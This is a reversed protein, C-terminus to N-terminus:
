RPVKRLTFFRNGGLLGQQADPIKVFNGGPDYYDQGTMWSYARGTVAVQNVVTLGAFRDAGPIGGKLYASALGQGFNLLNAFRGPRGGGNAIRLLNQVRAEVRPVAVPRGAADKYFGECQNRATIVELINQSRIAAIEEQRYGAPIHNLRAHLVWLVSLMAAKTDEEGVYGREGPFPAENILLRALYGAPAAAPELRVFEGAAASGAAGCLIAAAV